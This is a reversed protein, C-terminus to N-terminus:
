KGNHALLGAKSALYHYDRFELEFDLSEAFVEDTVNLFCRVWGKEILGKLIPKLEGEELDTLQMLAKFSQVFYLEDLVDYELESM